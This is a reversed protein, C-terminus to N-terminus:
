PPNALHRARMINQEDGILHRDAEAARSGQEGACPLIDNRIKKAQGLAQGATVQRKGGRQGGFFDKASEQAPRLFAPRKIMPVRIRAIREACRHGQGIEFQQLRANEFCQGVLNLPQAVLERAHRPQRNDAVDALM